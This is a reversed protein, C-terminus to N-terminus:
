NRKNRAKMESISYGLIGVRTRLAKPLNVFFAAYSAFFLWTYVFNWAIFAYAASGFVVVLIIGMLVRIAIIKANEPMKAACAAQVVLVFTAFALIPAFM